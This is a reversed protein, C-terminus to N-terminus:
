IIVLIKAEAMSSDVTFAIQKRTTWGTTRGDTLVHNHTTQRHTSDAFGTKFRTYYQKSRIFAHVHKLSVDCNSM